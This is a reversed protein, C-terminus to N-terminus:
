RTQRYRDESTRTLARKRTPYRRHNVAIATGLVTMVIVGFFLWDSWSQASDVVLVMLAAAVVAVLAIGIRSTRM